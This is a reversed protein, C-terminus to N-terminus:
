GSYEVDLVPCKVSCDVYQICSRFCVIAVRLGGFSNISNPFLLRVGVFACSFITLTLAAGEWHRDAYFLTIFTAIVGFGVSALALVIGYAWVKGLM